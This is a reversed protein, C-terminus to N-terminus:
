SIYKKLFPDFKNIVQEFTINELTPEKTIVCEFDSKYPAWIMESTNYNVYLGFVPINFASAIHVVSTDPTFLMGLQGILASFEDFSKSYFIKTKDNSIENALNVDAPSCLLLVKVNKDVLFQVVKQYNEVGWFRSKNGASINIGVLFNNDIFNTLLFDGAKRISEDSPYYYINIKEKDIRLGLLISLQMVRDIVHFKADDLRKITHTYVRDNSKSLGLKNFSNTLTLFYSVTTSVDDHLDIIVDFKMSNIKRLTKIFGALGKKFVITENVYKNNFIFYNKADALVTIKCNKQKKLEKILPTTVLADGIRNLRILLVNSNSDIKVPENSKSPSKLFLLLNLFFHRLLIELKKM